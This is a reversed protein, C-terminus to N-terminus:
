STVMRVIKPALIDADPFIPYFRTRSTLVLQGAYPTGPGGQGGTDYEVLSNYQLTINEPFSSLYVTQPPIGSPQPVLSPGSQCGSFLFQGVLEPQNIPNAILGNQEPPGWPQNTSYNFNTGHTDYNRQYINVSLIDNNCVLAQLEFVSTDLTESYPGWDYYPTLSVTSVQKTSWSGQRYESWNLTISLNKLPATTQGTTPATQSVQPVPVNGQATPDTSETFTAWFLYLRGDWVVPALQDAQIDVGVKEWPTWISGGGPTGYVSCNLLRRYYYTYPQATMRAFVHLVDNIADPTGDAAPTSNADLQWYTGRIDLLAVDNLAYLYNLYAQEVNDATIPNQLLTSSM